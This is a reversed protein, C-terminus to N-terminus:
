RAISHDYIEMLNHFGRVRCPDVPGSHFYIRSGGPFDIRRDRRSATFRVGNKELTDVTINMAHDTSSPGPSYFFVVANASITVHDLMQRIQKTTRGTGRMGRDEHKITFM